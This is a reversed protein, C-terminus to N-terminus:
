YNLNVISIDEDAYKNWSAYKVCNRYGRNYKRLLKNGLRITEYYNEDSKNNKRYNELWSKLPNFEEVYQNYDKFMYSINGTLTKFGNERYIADYDHANKYDVMRQLKSRKTTKKM